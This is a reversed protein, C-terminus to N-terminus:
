KVEHLHELIYKARNLDNDIKYATRCDATSIKYEINDNMDTFYLYKSTWSTHSTLSGVIGIVAGIGKMRETESLTQGPVPMFTAYVNIIYDGKRFDETTIYFQDDAIGSEKSVLMLGSETMFYVDYWTIGNDALTRLITDEIEDFTFTDWNQGFIPIILFLIIINRSIKKM